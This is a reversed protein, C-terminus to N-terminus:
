RSSRSGPRDTRGRGRDGLPRVCQGRGVGLPVDVTLERVPRAIVGSLFGATLAALVAAAGMVALLVTNIRGAFSTVATMDIYYIAYTLGSFIQLPMEVSVLYYERGSASLRMIETSHLDLREEKLQSALAIVEDYNHLYIHGPGPFVLEYEESVIIAEAQGVPSRSLRGMDPMLSPRQPREYSERDDDVIRMVGQLHENVSSQIYERVLFNFVALVVLFIGAILSLMIGLIRTRISIKRPGLNKM